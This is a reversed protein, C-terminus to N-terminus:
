GRGAVTRADFAAALVERGNETWNDRREDDLENWETRPDGWLNQLVVTAAEVTEAPIGPMAPPLVCTTGAPHDPHAAETCGYCCLDGPPECHQNHMDCCVASIDPMTM